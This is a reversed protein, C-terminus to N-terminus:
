GMTNITYDFSLIVNRKPKSLAICYGELQQFIHYPAWVIEPIGLICYQVNMSYKEKHVQTYCANFANLNFQLKTNSQNDV